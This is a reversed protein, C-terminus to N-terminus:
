GEVLAEEIDGEHIFELFREWIKYFEATKKKIVYTLKEYPLSSTLNKLWFGITPAAANMWCLAISRRAQLHCLDIMMNEKAKLKCTLPYISLICLKPCLPVSVSTIRSIYQVILRWFTKIEECEWLCHLLTGKHGSCKYCTDPINPNFKNLKEPTIYIRMIWNYQILRLRTNITQTQAKSCIIGWDIESIDVQLDQIWRQRTNESNEKCSGELISYMQSVLGKEYYDQTSFKELVSSPPQQTNKLHSYIFSRVQLYKFFHNQPIAYRRKLGEFSMLNGDEYLDLVQWISHNFWLQFGLDKKAPSLYHSGWIPAFGSLKPTDGLYKHVEFWINITNIVFPNTVMKKLKKLPASYLFSPLNIDGGTSLLEIQVWPPEFDKAFWFMAARLQAAWYYWQLNPHHM